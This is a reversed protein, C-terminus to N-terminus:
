AWELRKKGEEKEGSTKMGYIAVLIEIMSFQEPQCRGELSAANDWKTGKM